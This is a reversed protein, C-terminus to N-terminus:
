SQLSHSRTHGEMWWLYLATGRAKVQHQGTAGSVLTWHALILELQAVQRMTQEVRSLVAVKNLCRRLQLFM